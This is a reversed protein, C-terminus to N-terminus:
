VDPVVPRGLPQAIVCALRSHWIRLTRAPWLTVSSTKLSRLLVSSKMGTAWMRARDM